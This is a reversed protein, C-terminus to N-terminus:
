LVLMVGLMLGHISGEYAFSGSPVTGPDKYDVWKYRYGLTVGVPRSFRWGLVGAASWAFDSGIGFGGVEAKATVMLNGPLPTYYRVGVTPDLWGESFALDQDPLGEYSVVDMDHSNFRAGALVSVGHPSELPTVRYVAFLRLLLITYSYGLGTGAPASGGVVTSDDFSVTGIEFIGSWRNRGVEVLLNGLFVIGSSLGESGRDVPVTVDGVTATGSVNATWLYPDAHFFWRDPEVQQAHGSWPSLVASVLVFGILRYPGM